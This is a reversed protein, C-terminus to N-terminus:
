PVCGAHLSWHTRGLMGSGSCLSTAVFDMVGDGDLDLTEYRPSSGSSCSVTETNSLPSGLYDPPLAWALAAGFGAGTGLHVAWETRGLSGTGSCLGTVILDPADDGDADRLRYRPQGGAGCTAPGELTLFAGGPYSPLPWSTAASAFGTPSGRHVDWRGVGIPGGSCLSTIVLDPIRDGDLDTVAYRPSGAAPCSERQTQPFALGTFGSPLAYDVSSAAFRTGDNLHVLWRTRGVLMSEDCFSTLVLDPDLDGDVDLLAHRPEAGSCSTENTEDFRGAYTPLAFTTAASAFGTGTNLHVIWHALGVAGTGTCESTIVLDPRADGDLDFTGFRRAVATTCGITETDPFGGAYGSPLPWAVPSAFGAGTNRHLLWHTLGPEGGASCTGTIVLDLLGDGDLDLLSYRPSSGSSCTTTRTTLFPDGGGKPLGFDAGPSAFAPCMSPTGADAGSDMATGADSAAGADATSADPTAADATAADPTAADGTSADGTAADGTAADPTATDGTSADSTSADPAIAADGGSGADRAGGDAPAAADLAGADGGADLDGGVGEGCGALLACVSAM